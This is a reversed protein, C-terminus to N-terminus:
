KKLEKIIDEGKETLEYHGTKPAGEFKLISWGQLKNMDEYITRISVEFEKSIDPIKLARKQSIRLLISILRNLQKGKVSFKVSFNERFNTGFDITTKQIRKPKKFIVTFFRTFEFKIPKLGAESIMMRIKNIGTGMKEIYGARHLLNAINPNRLSM